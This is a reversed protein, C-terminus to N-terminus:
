PMCTRTLTPALGPRLLTLMPSSTLTPILALTLTATMAPNQRRDRLLDASRRISGLSNGDNM